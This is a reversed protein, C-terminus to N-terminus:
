DPWGRLKAIYMALPRYVAHAFKTYPALGLLLAASVLHISYSSYALISTNALRGVESLTGTIAVLFLLSLFLGDQYYTTGVTNKQFVRRGILVAGGFLLLAASANGLIKIPNDLPFPKGGDNLIYVAMTTLAAGAFGVIVSLHAIWQLRGTNCKRLSRQLAVERIAVNVLGKLRQGITLQAPDDSGQGIMKWMTRVNMGIGFAVTLGLALGVVDVFRFPLFDAFDVTAAASGIQTTLAVLVLLAAFISVALGAAFKPSTNLKRTPGQLWSYKSYAYRRLAAMIEGPDAQRPCAAKCTTCASCLWSDPSRMARERLGLQVLRITRRPFAKIQATLPCNATCSGCQYCKTISEGGLARIEELFGTDM